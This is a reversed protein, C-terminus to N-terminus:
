NSRRRGEERESGRSFRRAENGWIRVTWMRRVSKMPLQGPYAFGQNARTEKKTRGEGRGSKRNANREQRLKATSCKALWTAPKRCLNLRAPLFPTSLHGTITVVSSDSGSHTSLSLLVAEDKRRELEVSRGGRENRRVSVEGLDRSQSPEEDVM